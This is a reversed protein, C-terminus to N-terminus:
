RFVIFSNFIVFPNPAEYMSICITKPIHLDNINQDHSGSARLYQVIKRQNSFPNFYIVEHSLKQGVLRKFVFRSSDRGRGVFSTLILTSTNKYLPVLPSLSGKRLPSIPTHTTSFASRWRGRWWRRDRLSLVPPIRWLCVPAEDIWWSGIRCMRRPWILNYIMNINNNSM